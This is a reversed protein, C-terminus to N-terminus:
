CCRGGCGSLIEVVELGRNGKGLEDVFMWGVQSLEAET